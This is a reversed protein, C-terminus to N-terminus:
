ISVKTRKGPSAFAAYLIKVKKKADEDLMLQLAHCLIILLQYLKALNYLM